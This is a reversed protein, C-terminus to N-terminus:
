KKFRRRMFRVGALGAGLLLLSSPEPVAAANGPRVALGYESIYENDVYQIGSFPGGFTFNLAVGSGFAPDETDSWYALSSNILNLFSGTNVLGSGTTNGLDNYYLYGMESNTCVGLCQDSIPLRWGTLNDGNFDVTLGLAWNVQNQWSDPTQTYDYWTINLNPDYILRNGATDTGLDQLPLIIAHASVSLGLIMIAASLITLPFVFRKM